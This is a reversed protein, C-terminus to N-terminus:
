ETAKQGGLKSRMYTADVLACTVELCAEALKDGLAFKHARPMKAVRELVWHTIDEMRLALAAPGANPVAPPEAKLGGVNREGATEDAM